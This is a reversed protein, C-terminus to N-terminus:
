ATRQSRLGPARPSGGIAWWTTEDSQGTRPMKPGYKRPLERHFRGSCFKGHLLLVRPFFCVGCIWCGTSMPNHLKNCESAQLECRNQLQRPAGNSDDVVHECSASPKMMGANSSSTQCLRANTQSWYAQLPGVRQTSCTAHQWCSHSVCQKQFPACVSKATNDCHRAEASASGVHLIAKQSCRAGHISCHM